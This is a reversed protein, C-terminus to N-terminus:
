ANIIYRCLNYVCLFGTGINDITIGLTYQVVTPLLNCAASDHSNLYLKGTMLVGIQMRKPCYKLNLM